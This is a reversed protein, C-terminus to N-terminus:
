PSDMLVDEVDRRPTPKVGDGLDAVAYRTEEGMIFDLWAGEEEAAPRLALLLPTPM